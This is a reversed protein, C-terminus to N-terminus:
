LKRIHDACAKQLSQVMYKLPKFRSDSTQKHYYRFYIQQIIAALRFLGFTYYFDFHSISFGTAKAYIELLEKRSLAGPATSPLMRHSKLHDPDDAEVWYALSNGLDMLPNGLTTMEWDLVALLKTPCDKDWVVNDLKYDNHIIAAQEYDGPNNQEFWEIEPEFDPVDPTRAARFRKGWGLIQRTTYGEPKGLDDLGLKKFDLTHLQALVEMLTKGHQAIQEETLGLEPPYDRRFILGKKAEMLYFPMGLIDASGLAIPKPCYTFTGSLAQLIKYERNMDHANKPKTRVPPRRLVLQEDGKELLYTLNSFGGPFQKVQLPGSIHPVATALFQDIAVGDIEEGRRVPAAQDVLDM